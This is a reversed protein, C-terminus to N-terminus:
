SVYIASGYHEASIKQVKRTEEPTIFGMDRLRQLMCVSWYFACDNALKQENTM